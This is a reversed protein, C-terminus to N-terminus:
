REWHISATADVAPMDVMSPITLSVMVRDGSPAGVELGNEWAWPIDNAVRAQVEAPPMGVAYYRAADEAANSAVLHSLGWFVM